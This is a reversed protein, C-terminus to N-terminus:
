LSALFSEIKQNFEELTGDNAIHYDAQKRIAERNFDADSDGTSAEQLERQKFEELSLEAEGDRKRGRMREYRIELPADTFVIVGGANTIAKSEGLSRIGPVVLGDYQDIKEKFRQLAREVLVGGGHEERLETATKFLVPREISGYLMRAEERVINSTSVFLFNHKDALYQAVSDQGSAFTGAVGIIKKSSTTM